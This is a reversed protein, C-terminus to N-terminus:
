KFFDPDSAGLIATIKHQTFGALAPYEIGTRIVRIAIKGVPFTRNGLGTRATPSQEDNRIFFFNLTRMALFREKHFLYAFYIWILCPYQLMNALTAM